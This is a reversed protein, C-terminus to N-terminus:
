EGDEIVIEGNLFENQAVISSKQLSEFYKSVKIRVGNDGSDAASLYDIDMYESMESHFKECIEAEIQNSRKSIASVNRYINGRYMVDMDIPAINLSSNRESM